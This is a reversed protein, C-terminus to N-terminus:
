ERDDDDEEGIGAEENSVWLWAMVYAGEDSASVTPVDDWDLENDDIRHSSDLGSYKEHAATRLADDNAGPKLTEQVRDAIIRYDKAEQELRERIKRLEETWFLKADRENGEAFAIMAEKVHELQKEDLNIWM